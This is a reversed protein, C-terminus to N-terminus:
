ARLTYDLPAVNGVLSRDNGIQSRGEARRLLDLDLAARLGEDGRRAARLVLTRRTDAM